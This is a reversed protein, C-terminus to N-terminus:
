GPSWTAPAPARWGAWRCRWCPGCSTSGRARGAGGPRLRGLDAPGPLDDAGPGRGRRGGGARAREPDRGPHRARGGPGGPQRPDAAGGARRDGGARAAGAARGRAAARRRVLIPSSGASTAHRDAVPLGRDPEAPRPSTSRPGGSGCCTGSGGPGCGTACRARTPRSCSPPCGRPPPEATRWTEASGEPGRRLLTTMETM